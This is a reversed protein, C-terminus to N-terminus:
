AYERRLREIVNRPEVGNVISALVLRLNEQEVNFAILFSAVREPGYTVMRNEMVEDRVADGVAADVNRRIHESGLNRLAQLVNEGVNGSLPAIPNSDALNACNRVMETYREPVVFWRRVVDAPTGNWRSRLLASWCQLVAIDHLIRKVMEEEASDALELRLTCVVSDLFLSRAVSDASQPTERSRLMAIHEGIASREFPTAALADFSNELDSVSAGRAAARLFLTRFAPYRRPIEFFAKLVHPPSIKMIDSVMSEAYLDLGAHFDRVHDDTSFIVRYPTKALSSRADALSRNKLAGEFFNRNLLQTELVNVRGSVYGWESRASSGNGAGTETTMANM